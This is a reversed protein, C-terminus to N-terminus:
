LKWEIHDRIFRDWVWEPSDYLVEYLVAKLEAKTLGDIYKALELELNQQRQEEEKEYELVQRYYKCIQKYLLFFSSRWARQVVTKRSNLSRM